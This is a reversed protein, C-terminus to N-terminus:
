IDVISSFKNLCISVLLVHWIHSEICFSNSYQLPPALTNLFQRKVTLTLPLRVCLPHHLLTFSPQISRWHEKIAGDHWNLVKAVSAKSSCWYQVRASLVYLSLNLSPSTCCCFFFFYVGLAVDLNLSEPRGKLTFHLASVSGLFVWTNM